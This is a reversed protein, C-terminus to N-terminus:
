PSPVADLAREGGDSLPWLCFCFLYYEWAGLVLGHSEEGGGANAWAHAPLRHAFLPPLLNPKGELLAVRTPPPLHKAFFSYRMGGEPGRGADLLRELEARYAPYGEGENPLMNWASCGVYLAGAVARFGYFVVDALFVAGFTRFRWFGYLLAFLYLGFAGAYRRTGLTPRPARLRGRAPANRGRRRPM